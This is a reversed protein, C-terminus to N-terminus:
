VAMRSIGVSTFCINRQSKEYFASHDISSHWRPRSRPARARYFIRSILPRAADSTGLNGIAYRCFLFIRTPLPIEDPLQVRTVDM